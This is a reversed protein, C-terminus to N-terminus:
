EAEPMNRPFEMEISEANYKGGMMNRVGCILRWREHLSRRFYQEMVAVRNEFNVLRYHIATGSVSFGSRMEEAMDVTGSFRYIDRAIRAKLHEISADNVSKTLWQAQGGEDLLIVRDRRIQALDEATTGGMGSIALYSDAFLEFDNVSASQLKDYADVLTLVPEFDGMKERNNEYFLIPVAGFFHQRRGEEVLASGHHRYTIIEGDDYYEAMLCDRKEDKWIRVAATVPMDVSNAYIPFVTDPRLPTFRVDEIRDYWLLEAARGYVSLDRALASNAFREDNRLGVARIMERTQQEAKYRVGKGMFYGVTCDTINRCFPNVLRNDAGSAPAKGSLIPHKGMYYAGLKSLRPLENGQFYLIRELLERTDPNKTETM